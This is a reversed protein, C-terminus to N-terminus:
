GPLPLPLPLPVADPAPTASNRSARRGGRDPWGFPRSPRDPSHSRRAALPRRIRDGRRQAARRAVAAAAPRAEPDARARRRREGLVRGGPRWERARQRPGRPSGGGHGSGRNPVDLRGALRDYTAEGLSVLIFAIQPGSSM